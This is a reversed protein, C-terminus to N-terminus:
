RWVREGPAAGISGPMPAAAKLAKELTSDVTAVLQEAEVWVESENSLTLEYTDQAQIGPVAEATADFLLARTSYTGVDLALIFPLRLNSHATQQMSEVPQMAKM